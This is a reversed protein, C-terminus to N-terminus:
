AILGYLLLFYAPDSRTKNHKELAEWVLFWGTVFYEYSEQHVPREPYGMNIIAKNPHLLSVFMYDFCTLSDRDKDFLNCAQSLIDDRIEENQHDFHGELSLTHVDSPFFKEWLKGMLSISLRASYPTLYQLNFPTLEEQEKLISCGM